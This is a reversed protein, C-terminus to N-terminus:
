DKKQRPKGKKDSQGKGKCPPRKCYAMFDLLKKREDPSFSLLHGLAELGNEDTVLRRIQDLVGLLDTQPNESPPVGSAATFIEQAEVGLGTALKLITDVTLNGGKGNRLRGIYSPTLGSRNALELPAINKQCMVRDLYEALTEM